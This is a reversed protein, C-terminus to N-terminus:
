SALATKCLFHVLTWRTGTQPYYILFATERIFPEFFGFLGRFSIFSIVLHSRERMCQIAYCLIAAASKMRKIIGTLFHSM